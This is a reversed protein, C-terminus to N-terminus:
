RRDHPHDGAPKNSRRVADGIKVGERMVAVRHSDRAVEEL